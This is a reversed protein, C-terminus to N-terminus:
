IVDFLKSVSRNEHIRRIAEGVLPSVSVVKVKEPLNEPSLAATDSVYVCEVPAAAIKERAKGCFVGHTSCIFVTKAGHEKLIRAADTITGATSIMDDVLLAACGAVEGIVFESVTTEGDIRRKDITALRVGLWKAYARAMKISGLDPSVAVLQEKPIAGSKVMDYFIRGILPRAYLHDVPIDFFGQIQASHLDLTLIRDAGAKSILNAVLKATIPVRGQDKRDQRAYGFYPIVATIRKASARRACDILILLEMLNQNVPPCTSQILFVDAGRIDGNLKVNIEGDPFRGVDADLLPIGLYTSVKAAFAPNATGAILQLENNGNM